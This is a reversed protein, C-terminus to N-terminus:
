KILSFCNKLQDALDGFYPILFKIISIADEKAKIKEFLLTCIELVKQNGIMCFLFDNMTCDLAALICFFLFIQVAKM